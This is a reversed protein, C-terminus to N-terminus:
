SPATGRVTVGGADPEVSEVAHETRVDVAPVGALRARLAREVTPQHVLTAAPWGTEVDVRKRAHLLTRGRADVLRFGDLPRGAAAVEDAVGAADLVRLADDDLHAARPLAYGAAERELVVVPVGAQGLLLALTAGIPGLGVVVVPDAAM